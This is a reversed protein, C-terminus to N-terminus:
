QLDKWTPQGENFERWDKKAKGLFETFRKPPTNCVVTVVTFFVILCILYIM